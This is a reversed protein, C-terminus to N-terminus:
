WKLHGCEQFHHQTVTPLAEDTIGAGMHTSVEATQKHMKSPLLPRYLHKPEQIGRLLRCSARKLRPGGHSNCGVTFWCISSKREREKHACAVREKQFEKLYSFLDKIFSFSAMNCHRLKLGLKEESELKRNM